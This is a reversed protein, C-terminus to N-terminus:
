MLGTSTKAVPNSVNYKLGQGLHEAVLGIPDIDYLQVLITHHAPQLRVPKRTHYSFEYVQM